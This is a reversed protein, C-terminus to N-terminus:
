TSPGGADAQLDEIVKRAARIPMRVHVTEGPDDVDVVLSGNRIAVNVHERPSEVQVLDAGPIKELESLALHAIALDQQKGRLHEAIRREPALHVGWTAVTGPLYLHIHSGDPRKEHVNVEIVGDKMVVATAMTAGLLIKGIM